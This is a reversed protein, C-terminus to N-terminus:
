VPVFQQIHRLDRLLGTELIHQIGHLLYDDVEVLLETHLLAVEQRHGVLVGDPRSPSGPACEARDLLLFLGLVGLVEGEELGVLLLDLILEVVEAIVDDPEEIVLEDLAGGSSLGLDEVELHLLIIEPADGFVCLALGVLFGSVAGFDGVLFGEVLGVGVQLRGV